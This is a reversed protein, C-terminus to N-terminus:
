KTYTDIKFIKTNLIKNIATSKIRYIPRASSGPIEVYDIRNREIMNYLTRRSVGLEEAAQPVTFLKM